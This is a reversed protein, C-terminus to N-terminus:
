GFDLLVFDKINPKTVLRLLHSYTCFFAGAACSLFSGSHWCILALLREVVGHLDHM